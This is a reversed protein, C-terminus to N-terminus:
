FTFENLRLSMNVEFCMPSPKCWFDSSKNFLSLINAYNILVLHFIEGVVGAGGYFIAESPVSGILM